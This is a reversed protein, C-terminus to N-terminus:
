SLSTGDTDSDTKDVHILSFVGSVENSPGSNISMTFDYRQNHPFTIRGRVAQSSLYTATGYGIKNGLEFQLKALSKSLAFSGDPQPVGEANISLHGVHTRGLTASFDILVEQLLNPNGVQSHGVYHLRVPLESGGNLPLIGASFGLDSLSTGSSVQQLGLGNRSSSNALEHTTFTTSRYHTIVLSGLLLLVLLGSLSLAPRSIRRSNATPAGQPSLARLRAPLEFALRSTAVLVVIDAVLLLEGITSATSADLLIGLSTLGAVGNLAQSLFHLRMSQGQDAPASHLAQLTRGIGLVILLVSVITTAAEHHFIQLLAAEGTHSLVSLFFKLSIFFSGVIVFAQASRRLKATHVSIFAAFSIIASTSTLLLLTVADIPTHHV